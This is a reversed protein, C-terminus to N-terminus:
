TGSNYSVDDAPPTYVGTETLHNLLMKELEAATERNAEYIDAGAERPDSSLDYLERARIAGSSNWFLMLKYNGKRIASCLKQPRHFFLAGDSREINGAPNKLLPKMSSGDVTEPLVGGGANTLDFFTPLLDYGSVPTRCVSQAPVGPGRAMFPVRIGGEYLDQKAGTLPFNPPRREADGGPIVPSGGNDAMLFVYTNEAIGLEDLADLLQGICSDLEEMMAAWAPTYFRDPTGKRQYKKLTEEKCVVSLHVSYFSAQVFFPRKAAAQERMFDITSGTVSFTRKPDNNDIFFEPGDNHNKFGFSEPMGGTINGTNGDSIDYGCEEPTSAILEGWKGFHACRYDPNATKLARPITIHDRPIWDSKFEGGSRATTTGCLISRRTPTCLPAPAYGSVFRIGGDALRNMNPTELYSSMSDPILPDMRGSTQSWGHDDTLIFLINPPSQDGSFAPSAGAFFCGAGFLKIIQNKKM